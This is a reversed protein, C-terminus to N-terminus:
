NRDIQFNIDQWCCDHDYQPVLIFKIHGKGQVLNQFENNLIPPINEDAEGMYHRQPIDIWKQMESAPNISYKLQSIQHFQTWSDIDLPSAITVLEKVDNRRGAILTALTGGGSFGYLRISQASFFEKIQDIAFSTSAIVEQSYRASTWMVPHCNKKKDNSVFQCPRALYATAGKLRSAILFGTPKLPTPDDSPQFRTLWARGDGEIVINIQNEPKAPSMARFLHFDGALQSNYTWNLESLVTTVQKTSSTVCGGLLFLLGFSFAALKRAAKFRAICLIRM